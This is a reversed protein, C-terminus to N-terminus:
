SIKPRRMQAWWVSEHSTNSDYYLPYPAQRAYTQALNLGGADPFCNPILISFSEIELLFQLALYTQNTLLWDSVNRESPLGSLSAAFKDRQAVAKGALVQQFVSQVM